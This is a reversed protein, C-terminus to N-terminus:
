NLGEAAVKLAGMIAQNGNLGSPVIYSDLDELERTSIYGNLNKKVEKRIMSFLFNRYMVGGGLVIRQPSYMMIYSSLAQGIYFAETKWVKDDNPIQLGIRGNCREEIAPGSALGEFCQNGHYPCRGLYIDNPKLRLFIHGAEPHSMGHIIRGDVMVGVGIGTGITVYLSSFVDKTNGWEAEGICAMNVDTELMVPIRLGKEFFGAIDCGCWAKKPSNMIRGYNESERNLEVPGFSGIGLAEVDHKTFYAKLKPLTDDPITTPFVKRDTIEGNENGIACVMKTGGAEIAGLKM